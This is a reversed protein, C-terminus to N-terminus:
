STLTGETHHARALNVEARVTLVEDIPTNWEILWDTYYKPQSSAYIMQRYRQRIQLISSENHSKRTSYINIDSIDELSMGEQIIEEINKTGEHGQNVHIARLATAWAV